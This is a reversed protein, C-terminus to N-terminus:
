SAGPGDHSGSASDVTDAFRLAPPGAAVRVRVAALGAFLTEIGHVSGVLYSANRHENLVSVMWQFHLM